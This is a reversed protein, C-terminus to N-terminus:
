AINEVESAVSIGNLIAQRTLSLQEYFYIAHKAEDNQFQEHIFPYELWIIKCYNDWYTQRGGDLYALYGNTPGVPYNKREVAGGVSIYNNINNMRHQDLLSYELYSLNSIYSTTIKAVPASGSIFYDYGLDVLHYVDGMQEAWTNIINVDAQYVKASAKVRNYFYIKDKSSIPLSDIQRWVLQSSGPNEFTISLSLPTILCLDSLVAGLSHGTSTISIYELLDVKHKYVDRVKESIQVIFNSVSDFQGPIFGLAVEVDAVIDKVSSLVTGRHAIIFQTNKTFVDKVYCNGVYGNSAEFSSFLSWGEPLAILNDAGYVHLSLASYVALPVDKPVSVDRIFDFITSIAM